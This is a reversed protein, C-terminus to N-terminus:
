QSASRRETVAYRLLRADEGSLGLSLGDRGPEGAFALLGILRGNITGHVLAGDFLLDVEISAAPPIAGEIVPARLLPQQPGMSYDARVIGTGADITLRGVPAGEADSRLDFSLVGGQPTAVTAQLRVTGGMALPQVPLWTGQARTVSFTDDLAPPFAHCLSDPADACYRLSVAPTLVHVWGAQHRAPEDRFEDAVIGVAVQGGMGDPAITPARYTGLIDIQQPAPDDPRFRTGDFAGTWYLTRAPGEPFVPTAMLVWRDGLPFLMPLEWYMGPMEVGGTDFRGAPTFHTGDTSRYAFAFAEDRGEAGAGILMLWGDDTRMVWPDRMDQYAVPTEFTITHSQHLNGDPQLDAIGIGSWEGNVGTYAVAPPTRDPIWNGVWVGRRDFGTGPLLAPLRPEWTVLDNSVQHGWVIQRWYAGNPNAQYFLHWRGDIRTLAHPENTWGTPGLPALRPRDPDAGYWAPPADLDPPGPPLPGPAVPGADRRFTVDRLAGNIAGLPHTDQQFGADLARGVAFLGAIRDPAPGPVSAVEAGNVRLRLREGDWDAALHVWDGLDLPQSAAARLGGLRVEPQRWRNLGLFFGGEGLFVMAATDAPPAALALWGGASLGQAPDVAVEGEAELWNSNGDFRFTARDDAEPAGDPRVLPRMAYPTTLVMEGLAYADPGRRELVDAHGAGALALALVLAAGDPRRM